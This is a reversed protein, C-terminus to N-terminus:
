YASPNKRIRPCENFYRKMRVPDFPKVLFGKAGRYITSHVSRVTNDASVMVVYADPDIECIEKTIDIGTKGPLHIDLFLLDPRHEVYAPVVADGTGVEIFKALGDLHAMLVKRVLPDDDAIMVLNYARQTQNAAM